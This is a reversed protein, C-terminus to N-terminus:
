KPHSLAFILPNFCCATKAFFIPLQSVEPTILDLRGCSAIFFILTYPTWAIFWILVSTVAVKCVRM